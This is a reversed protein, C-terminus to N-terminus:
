FQGMPYSGVIEGRWVRGIGLRRNIERGRGKGKGGNKMGVNSCERGKLVRGNGFNIAETAVAPNMAGDEEEEEHKEWVLRGFM